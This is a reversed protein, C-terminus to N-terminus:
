AEAEFKRVADIMEPLEGAGSITKPVLFINRPSLFRLFEAVLLDPDAVELAYRKRDSVPDIHCVKWGASNLNRRATRSVFSLPVHEGIAAANWSAIDPVQGDLAMAFAWNAPTNDALVVKRGDACTVLKERQRGDRLVLPLDSKLWEALLNDWAELIPREPRPRHISSAWLQGLEVLPGSLAERAM